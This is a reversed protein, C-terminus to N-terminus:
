NFCKKMYRWLHLMSFIQSWSGVSHDQIECPPPAWLVGRLCSARLRLAMTLIHRCFLNFPSGVGLSNIIVSIYFWLQSIVYLTHLLFKYYSTIVKVFVKDFGSPFPRLTGFEVCWVLCPFSIGVPDLNELTTSLLVVVLEFSPGFGSNDLFLVFFMSIHIFYGNFTPVPSPRLLQLSTILKVRSFSGKFFV